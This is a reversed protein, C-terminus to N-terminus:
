EIQALDAASPRWAQKSSAAEEFQKQPGAPMESMSVKLVLQDRERSIEWMSLTPALGQQNPLDVSAVTLWRGELDAPPTGRVTTHQDPPGEAAVPENQEEARGLLAATLLTLTLLAAFLARM